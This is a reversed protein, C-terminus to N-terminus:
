FDLVNEWVVDRLCDWVFVLLYDMLHVLLIVWSCEWLIALLSDMLFDRSCDLANVKADDLLCGMLDDSDVVTLVDKASDM